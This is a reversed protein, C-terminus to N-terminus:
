IAALSRKLGAKQPEGGYVQRNGHRRKNDGSLYYRYIITTLAGLGLCAIVWSWITPANEVGFEQLNMGYLSTMFSLPVFVMALKTLRTVNRAEVIAKASEQITAKHAVITMGQVCERHLATAYQLAARYDRLFSKITEGCESQREASLAQFWPRRNLGEMFEIPETLNRVQRRLEQQCYLLNSLTSFEQNILTDHDLESRIKSELERLLDMEASVVVHFWPSVSYFLDCQARQPDIDHSYIQMIFDVIGSPDNSPPTQSRTGMILSDKFTTRRGYHTTPFHYKVEGPVPRRGKAKWPGDYGEDLPRGADHWVVGIMGCAVEQFSISIQQEISFQDLGHASFDRVISDCPAAHWHDLRSIRNIYQAMSESADMRFEDLITQNDELYSIDPYSGITVMRLSVSDGSVSPLRPAHVSATTTRGASESSFALHSCFIEPYLLYHGGLANLVEASPYGRLLVLSFDRRGLGGPSRLQELAQITSVPIFKGQQDNFRRIAAFHCPTKNNVQTHISDIATIHTEYPQGLFSALDRFMEGYRLSSSLTESLMSIRIAYDQPSLGQVPGASHPGTQNGVYDDPNDHRGRNGSQPDM